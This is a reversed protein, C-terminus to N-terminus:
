NILTAEFEKNPNFSDIGYLVLKDSYIAKIPFVRRRYEQIFVSIFLAGDVEELKLSDGILTDGLYIPELELDLLNANFVFINSVGGYQFIYRSNVVDKQSEINQTPSLRVFNRSFVTKDGQEDLYGLKLSNDKLYEIRYRITAECIIKSNKVRYSENLFTERFDKQLIKENGISLIQVSPNTYVNTEKVYFWEGEINNQSM